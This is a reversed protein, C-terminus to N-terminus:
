KKPTAKPTPAPTKTKAQGGVAAGAGAAGAAPKGAKKAVAFLTRGGWNPYNSAVPKFTQVKASLESKSKNLTSPVVVWKRTKQDYMLLDFGAPNKKIDAGNLTIRLELPREFVVQDNPPWIGLAFMASGVLRGKDIEQPPNVMDCYVAADSQKTFGVPLLV